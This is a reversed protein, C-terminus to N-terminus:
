QDVLFLYWAIYRIWFVQRTPWPEGPSVRHHLFEVEVPVWGLQAAMTFYGMSLVFCTLASLCCLRILRPKRTTLSM